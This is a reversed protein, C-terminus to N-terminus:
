LTNFKAQPKEEAKLTLKNTSGAVLVRYKKVLNTNKLEKFATYVNNLQEIDKHENSQRRPLVSNM